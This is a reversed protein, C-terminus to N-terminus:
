ISQHLEEATHLTKSIAQKIYLFLDVDNSAEIWSLYIILQFAVFHRDYKSGCDSYLCCHPMSLTPKIDM